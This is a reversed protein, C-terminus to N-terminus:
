TRDALTVTSKATDAFSHLYHFGKGFGGSDKKIKNISEAYPVPGTVVEVITKFSQLSRNGNFFLLLSRRSRRLLVAL